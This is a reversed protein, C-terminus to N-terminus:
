CLCRARKIQQVPVSRPESTTSLDQLGILNGQALAAARDAARSACRFSPDSSPALTAAMAPLESAELWATNAKRAETTRPFRITTEGDVVRSRIRRLM